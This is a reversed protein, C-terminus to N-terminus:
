PRLFFTGSFFWVSTGTTFARLVSQPKESALGAVAPAGCNKVFESHPIIHPFEFRFANDPMDAKGDVIGCLSQVGQQGFMGFGLEHLKLQIVVIPFIRNNLRSLAVFCGQFM